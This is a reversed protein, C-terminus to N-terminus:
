YKDLLPTITRPLLRDEQVTSIHKKEAVSKSVYALLHILKKYLTESYCRSLRSILHVEDFKKLWDTTICSGILKTSIECISNFDLMFWFFFKCLVRQDLQVLTKCTICSFILSSSSFKRTTPDYISLGCYSFSISAQLKTILCISKLTFKYLYITNQIYSCRNSVFGLDM